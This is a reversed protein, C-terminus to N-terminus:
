HHAQQRREFEFKGFHLNYAQQVQIRRLTYLFFGSAVYVQAPKDLVTNIVLKKLGGGGGAM